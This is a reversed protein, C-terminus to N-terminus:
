VTPGRQNDTKYTTNFFVGRKRKLRANIFIIKIIPCPARPPIVEVLPNFHVGSSQGLERTDDRM